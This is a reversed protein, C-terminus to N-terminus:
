VGYGNLIRHTAFAENIWVWGTALELHPVITYGVVHKRTCQGDIIGFAVPHECLLIGNSPWVVPHIHIHTSVTFAQVPNLDNVKVSVADRHAPNHYLLWTVMSVYLDGSIIRPIKKHVM